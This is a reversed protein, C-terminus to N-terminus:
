YALPSVLLSHSTCFHGEPIPNIDETPNLPHTGLCATYNSPEGNFNSPPKWQFSLTVQTDSSFCYSEMTINEIITPAPSLTSATCNYNYPGPASSLARTWIVNM